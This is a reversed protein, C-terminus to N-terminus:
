EKPSEVAPSESARHDALRLVAELHALGWIGYQTKLKAYLSAWDEGEYDFASSQPGPSPPRGPDTIGLSEQIQRQSGQMDHPDCFNFFPRGLGHHTGILWLVLAPDHAKAFDPHQQALQVSLAEHRWGVPLGAQQWLVKGSGRSSKALVRDDPLNWPDSGALLIQFRADAKGADHLYAALKLDASIESPLGLTQAFRWAYGQVDKAHAELSIPGASLNSLSDDETVSEGWHQKSAPTSAEVLLVLGQGPAYVDDHVSIRGGSELAAALSQRLPDSAGPEASAAPLADLVRQALDHGNQCDAIAAQTAPWCHEPVLNMSVRIAYRRGRYAVAALDALDEVPEESEPHWGFADCGGYSAPVVLLDGPRLQTHDICGTRAEGHGAWRFAMRPTKRARTTAAERSEVEQEPVDAIADLRSFGGQLWKSAVWLPVALTEAARPPVLRLLASLRDADGHLDDADVDARWVISVEAPARETGHLFFGVEPDAIPIPATQAWLDLYAPMLVPADPKQTALAAPDLAPTGPGSDTVKAQAPTDLALQGQSAAGAKVPGTGDVLGAFAAFGFDIRGEADKLAKPLAQLAAWTERLRDGYVPDDTRKSTDGKTALIVAPATITRGDRNLRGFRQRLADLPAVQTVLGDLDLDVGVELCQTSVVLLSREAARAEGTRFPRLHKDVLEDCGLDRSRGIMLIVEADVDGSGVRERLLTHIQRALAVRNVVIGIAFPSVQEAQLGSAMEIAAKAFYESGQETAVEQLCALKPAELRRRLVPHEMDAKGLELPQRPKSDPTASLLACRVGAQGVNRVAELTQRFPESLHAEDLLILTNCGLLGAHVPKMRDSVGYGRFLLRSGVQDVTSCLLLPQTPTRVWDHELPAGGRLKRVVLPPEKDGALAQLRRRVEGLVPGDSLLANAIKIGRGYTDDVVIRRDVVFAIRLAAKQPDAYRLALHFVAADMAATKGCGTPLNLVDPWEDTEALRDALAQQWPFPEQGHIARFFEGFHKSTLEM